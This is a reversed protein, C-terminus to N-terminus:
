IAGSDTLWRDLVMLTWSQEHSFSAGRPRRIIGAEALRDLADDLLERRGKLWSRIPMNFGRKALEFLGEPVRNRMLQRVILKGRNGEVDRLLRTDLSLAFEVLRHDLLPPRVELSHAMSTRDVKTLLDGPLYTHLDMWQMRKLPELGEDWFRRLHWLDDYGDDALRPGLLARKQVGTFPGLFEAYRDLGTSTRRQCSRAAASFPPLIRSLLNHALTPRQSPWKSYWQYGCFLEDGGEGSLCVTVYQRALRSVQYTAWASSDGFPEDFTRPVVELAEDLDMSTATVETHDTGFHDAVLRGKPAEDRRAVDCGLTFTRPRELHATVTTSDIGGSLFVGVPVDAITHEPVIETLMAGLQEVAEGADSIRVETAPQWYRELHLTGDWLLTHAPPLKHIGAYVSKPEPIYKYSLYDRLATPDVAPRRLELLAKLESAFALGGPLETYYLPKIGLRDRALFLQRADADWIAFAFMGRLQDVCRPGWLQFAHLIVETDCQSLFPGALSRRLEKFNYVEGNYSITLPGLSMPQHGAQSLDLISLRTHGLCAGPVQQVGHDDPGRHSLARAMREVQGPEPAEGIIGVIGCM